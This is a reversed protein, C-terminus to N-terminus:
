DDRVGLARLADRLMAEDAGNAAHVVQRVLRGREETHHAASPWPVNRVETWLDYMMVEDLVIEVRGESETTVALLWEDGEDTPGYSVAPHPGGAQYQTVERM